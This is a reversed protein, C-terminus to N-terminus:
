SCAPAGKSTTSGRMGAPSSSLACCTWSPANPPAMASTTASARRVPLAIKIVPPLQECAGPTNPPNCSVCPGPARMPRTQNSACPSKLVGCVENVWWRPPMGTATQAPNPRASHLSLACM